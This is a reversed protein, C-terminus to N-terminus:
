YNCIILHKTKRKTLQYIKDYEDVVYDNFLRSTIANKNLILMLKCMCSKFLDLIDIFMKTHDQITKNADDRNKNGIYTSYYANFSDLYPPDCFMFVTKINKYKNFVIQYDSCTFNTVKIWQFFAPYDVPNLPKSIRDIPYLGQRIGHVRHFFLYLVAQKAKGSKKNKFEEIILSFKRENMNELLKNYANIIKNPSKKIQNFFNILDADIDNVHCKISPNEAFLALSVYGSGGFPEVIKTIKPPLDKVFYKLDTRKSGIYPLISLTM